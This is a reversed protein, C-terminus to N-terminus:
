ALKLSFTPNFNLTMLECLSSLQTLHRRACLASSGTEDWDVSLGYPSSLGFGFAMDGDKLPMAFYASPLPKRIKRKRLRVLSPLSSIWAWTFWVPPSRHKLM